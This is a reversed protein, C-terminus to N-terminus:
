LACRRGAFCSICNFGRLLFRNNININATTQCILRSTIAYATMAHTYYHM